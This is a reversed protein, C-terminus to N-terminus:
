GALPAYDAYGNEGGGYFTTPDAEALPAGRRFREVLDPNAIFSRAFAVADVEGAAVAAEASDFTYGGAGILANKFLPRFLSVPVLEWGPPAHRRDSDDPAIVHLYALDLAGLARATYGFTERPRSDFMENFSGSPSLRVGVRGPGWVDGM